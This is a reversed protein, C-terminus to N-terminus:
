KKPGPRITASKVEVPASNCHISVPYKTSLDYDHTEEFLLEDDLWVKMGAPAIQWRIAFPRTAPLTVPKDLAQSGFFEPMADPRHIRLHDGNRNFQQGIILRGGAGILINLETKLSRAVVTIDIAGRYYQRTVISHPPRLPLYGDSTLTPQPRFYIGFPWWPNQLDPVTKALSAMSQQVSKLKPGKLRVAAIQYWHHARKQCALKLSRTNTPAGAYKRWDGALKVQEDPDEPNALDKEALAKLAADSGRALMPLGEEWDDRAACHFKGVALNAKADDPDAELTRLDAQLKGHEQKANEARKLVSEATKSFTADLRAKGASIRLDKVLRASIDYNELGVAQDVLPLGVEVLDVAQSRGSKMATELAVCQMEVPDVDFDHAMRRAQSIGGRVNDEASTDRLERLLAFHRPPDNRATNIENFLVSFLKNRQNTYEEKHRARIDKVAAEVAAADPVPQRRPRRRPPPPPPPPPPPQVVVRAPTLWNDIRVMADQGKKLQFQDFTPAFTRSTTSGALVGIKVKAPLEMDLPKVNSWKQGDESYSALIQKGRRELRLYTEAASLSPFNHQVEKLKGDERVEWNAYLTSPKREYWGARELRLFTNDNVWLLLGAGIWSFKAGNTSDAAPTFDGGVRVQATFDGEVERLLRPSNMGNAGLHLVHSKAPVTITLKGDAEKFQCDGDPDVPPQWALKSSSGTATPALWKDIRGMEGKGQKFQFRDFTPAFSTSAMSIAAVGIQVKRPLDIDFPKLETWKEGDDSLFGFLQGGRRELRVYGEVASIKEIGQSLVRKGDRRLEWFRVADTGFRGRELRLYTQDDVMLLLGAAQLGKEPFGSVHVEATFDGELDRLLRPANMKGREITLDYRKNRPFTITLKGNDERFQCDGDPDVLRDWGATRNPAPRSSAAVAPWPPEKIQGPDDIGICPFTRTDFRLITVTGSVRILKRSFHRGVDPIGIEQYKKRTSEPFRVFMNGERDWSPESYLEVFEKNTGGGQARLQVTVKQGAKSAAQVPTLVEGSEPAPPPNSALASEPLRVVPFFSA